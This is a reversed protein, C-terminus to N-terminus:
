IGSSIRLSRGILMFALWINSAFDLWNLWSPYDMDMDAELGQRLGTAFVSLNTIRYCFKVFEVFIRFLHANTLATSRTAEAM